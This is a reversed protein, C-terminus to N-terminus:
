ENKGDINEGQTYKVLKWLNSMVPEDGSKATFTYAISTFPRYSRKEYFQDTSFSQRM